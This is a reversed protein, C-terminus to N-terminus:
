NVETQGNDSIWNESKTGKLNAHSLVHLRIRQFDDFYESTPSIELSVPSVAKKKAVFLARYSARIMGDLQSPLRSRNLINGMREILSIHEYNHGFRKRLYCEMADDVVKGSEEISLHSQKSLHTSLCIKFNAYKDNYTDSRMFSILGESTQGGSGPISERAGYLIDLHKLKGDILTLASPLLEGFRGDSAFRATEKFIMRLLDTRHVAYFTPHYDRLHSAIREGPDPFIISKSSCYIHKWYFQQNGQRNDKLYFSATNGHAIAFDPNEELFDLSKDIGNPTIFDDDACFVSYKTKVYNLADVIKHLGDITTPYTNIYYISLNTPLSITEENVKKMEDSSSDAVIINYAAGCEDYYSLIRKLYQPRNYTPIIISCKMV